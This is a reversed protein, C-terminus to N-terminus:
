LLMPVAVARATRAMRHLWIGQLPEPTSALRDPIALVSESPLQTM